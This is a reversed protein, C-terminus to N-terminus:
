LPGCLTVVRFLLKVLPNVLYRCHNRLEKDRPVDSASSTPMVTTFLRPVVMVFGTEISATVSATNACHVSEFANQM